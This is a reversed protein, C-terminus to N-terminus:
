APLFHIEMLGSYIETSQYNKRLQEALSLRLAGGRTKHFLPAKAGRERAQPPSPM